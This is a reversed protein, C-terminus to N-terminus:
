GAMIIGHTGNSQKPSPECSESCDCSESTSESEVRLEEAYEDNQITSDTNQNFRYNYHFVIAPEIQVVFVKLPTKTEKGESNKQYQTIQLTDIDLVKTVRGYSNNNIEFRCGESDEDFKPRPYVNVTRALTTLNGVEDKLLVNYKGENKQVNFVDEFKQPSENHINVEQIITKVIDVTILQLSAIFRVCDEKFKKNILIDDVIEEVIRPGLHTFEKLYRIRSPRQLLNEEVRLKNTTFIFLRRYESNMVGDMITLMDNSDRYIKEYEDVFITIDQPITNLFNEVGGDFRSDVIITPQRLKNCIIKASVTKGTGRIGNFMVGLNGVTNEFTKLTRKIIESEIGYVKYNFTFDQYIKRLGLNKNRDMFIEYVANELKEVEKAEYSLFLGGSEERWILKKGM